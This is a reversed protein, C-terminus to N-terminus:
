KAEVLVDFVHDRTASLFWFREVGNEKLVNSFIGKNEKLTGNSLRKNIEPVNCVLVLGKPSCINMLDKLVTEENDEGKLFYLVRDFKKQPVTSWDQVKFFSTSNDLKLKNRIEDSVRVETTM